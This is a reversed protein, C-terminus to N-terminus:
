ELHSYSNSAYKVSEDSSSADFSQFFFSLQKEFVVEFINFIM